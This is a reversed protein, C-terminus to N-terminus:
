TPNVQGAFYARSFDRYALTEKQRSVLKAIVFIVQTHTPQICAPASTKRLTYLTVINNKTVALNQTATYKASVHAHLPMRKRTIHHCRCHKNSM